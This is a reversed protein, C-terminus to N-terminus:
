QRPGRPPQLHENALSDLDLRRMRARRDLTQHLPQVATPQEADLRGALVKEEAELVTDDQAAVQAHGAAPLDTGSARLERAPRPEDEAAGLALRHEPVAGHELEVVAGDPPEPGVDERLRR